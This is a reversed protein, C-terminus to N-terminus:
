AVSKRAGWRNDLELTIDRQAPELTADSHLRKLAEHLADEIFNRNLKSPTDSQWSYFVTLRKPM